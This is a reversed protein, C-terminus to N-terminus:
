DGAHFTVPSGVVKAVAENASSVAVTIDGLGGRISQRASFTDIGPAIVTPYLQANIPDTFTTARLGDSAFNGIVFGSPALTVSANTDAFGDASSTLTATREDTLAQVYFPASQIFNPSMSITVSASGASRPSTSVLFRAPDSSKLTISLGGAPVSLGPA